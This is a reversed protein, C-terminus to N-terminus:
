NKRKTTEDPIADKKVPSTSMDEPTRIYTLSDKDVDADVPSVRTTTETTHSSRASQDEWTSTEGGGKANVGDPDSIMPKTPDESSTDAIGSDCATLGILLFALIYLTSKM